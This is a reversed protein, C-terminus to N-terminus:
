RRQTNRHKRSRRRMRRTQYRQKVGQTVVQSPPAFSRYRIDMDNNVYLPKRTHPNIRTRAM